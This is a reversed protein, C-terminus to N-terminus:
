CGGFGGGPSEESSPNEQHSHHGVPPFFDGGSGKGKGGEQRRNVGPAKKNGPSISIGGSPDAGGDKELRRFLGRDKLTKRM